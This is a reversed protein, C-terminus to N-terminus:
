LRMGKSSGRLSGPSPRVLLSLLYSVGCGPKSSKGGESVLLAVPCVKIRLTQRTPM